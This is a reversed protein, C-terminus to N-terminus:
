WAFLSRNLVQRRRSKAEDSALLRIYKPLFEESIIVLLAREKTVFNHAMYGGKRM